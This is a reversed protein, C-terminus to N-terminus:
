LHHLRDRHLAGGTPPRMRAPTSLHPPACRLARPASATGRGPLLAGCGLARQRAVGPDLAREAYWGLAAGAPIWPAKMDHIGLGLSLMCVKMYNISLGSYLMRWGQARWITAMARPTSQGSLLPMLQLSSRGAAVASAAQPAPQGAASAAGAPLGASTHVQQRTHVLGEVQPLCGAPPEARSWRGGPLMRGALAAMGCAAHVGGSSRRGRM